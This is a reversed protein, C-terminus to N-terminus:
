LLNALNLKNITCDYGKFRDKIEKSFAGINMSTRILYKVYNSTLEKLEIALPSSCNTIVDLIKSIDEATNKNVHKNKNKIILEYGLM